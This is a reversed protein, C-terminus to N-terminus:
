LLQFVSLLSTLQLREGCCDARNTLDVRVVLTEIGLDVAWWPNVASMSRSCSNILTSHRVGDNALSAGYTGSNDTYTSVQYSKKNLAVNRLDSVNVAFLCFCSLNSCVVENACGKYCM